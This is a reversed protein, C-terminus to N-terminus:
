LLVFVSLSDIENHICFNQELAVGGGVPVSLPAGMDVVKFHYNSSPFYLNGFVGKKRM